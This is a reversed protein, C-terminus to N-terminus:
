PYYSITRTETWTYGENTKAVRKTWNGKADISSAPYTYSVVTRTKGPPLDSMDNEFVEDDEVYGLVRGKADLTYTTVTKQEPDEYTKKTLRGSTNYAYAESFTYDYDGGSYYTIQGRTNRKFGKFQTTITQGDLKTWKGVTSFNYTRTVSAYNWVCKSVKGTLDWMALDAAGLPYAKESVVSSSSTATSQAAATTIAQNKVEFHYDNSFTVRALSLRSVSTSVNQILAVVNVPIGPELKINSYHGTESGNVMMKADYSNGAEDYIETGNLFITYANENLNKLTMCLAVTNGDRICGLVSLYMSPLTCTANDVNTNKEPEAVTFNELRYDFTNFKGNVMIHGSAKLQKFNKVTRSVEKIEFFGKVSVGAPINYGGFPVYDNGMVVNVDYDRGNADYAKRINDPSFSVDGSSTNQMLFRVKVNKGWYEVKTIKMSVGPISTQKMGGALTTMGADSSTSTSNDGGLIQNATDLAKGLKKLWKQGYADTCGAGCIAALLCIILRNRM